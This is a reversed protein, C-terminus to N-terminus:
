ATYPLAQKRAAGSPHSSSKAPAIARQFWRATGHNPASAATCATASATAAHPVVADRAHSLTVCTSTSTWPSGAANSPYRM